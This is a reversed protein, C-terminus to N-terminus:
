GRDETRWTVVQDIQEKTWYNYYGTAKLMNSKQTLDHLSQVIWLYCQEFTTTVGQIIFPNRPDNDLVVKDDNYYKNILQKTVQELEQVTYQEYTPLYLIHVKYKEIDCNGVKEEIDDLSCEQITFQKTLIAARAFPCIPTGGLEPRPTQIHNFWDYISSIEM